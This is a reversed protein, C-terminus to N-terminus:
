LAYEESHPFVDPEAIFKDKQERHLIEFPVANGHADQLEFQSVAQEAPFEVEFLLSGDYATGGLNLVHLHEGM